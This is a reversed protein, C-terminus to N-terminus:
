YFGILLHQLLFCDSNTRLHVYFVYTGKRPLIYLKKTNFRTTRLSDNSTEFPLQTYANAAVKSRFM